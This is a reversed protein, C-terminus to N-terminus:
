VTSTEAVAEIEEELQQQEKRGRIQAAAKRAGKINGAALAQRVEAIRKRDHDVGTSADPPIVPAPLAGSSPVAPMLSVLEVEDAPIGTTSGQITFYTRSDQIGMVGTIIVQEDADPGHWMAQWTEGATYQTAADVQNKGEESRGNKVEVGKYLPPPSTFLSSDPSSHTFESHLSHLAADQHAVEPSSDTFESTPKEPVTVVWNVREESSGTFESHVEPSSATSFFYSQIEQRGTSTLTYRKFRNGSAEIFGLGLLKSLGKNVTSGAMETHKQIDSHSAGGAFIALNLTELIEYHKTTLASDRGTLKSSPIVTVSDAQPILRFYRNAFPKAGNIKECTLTLLGDESQSLKIVVRSAGRLSSNGREHQDNWGTHHCILIAAETARRIQHFADIAIGMDQTSNEDGGVMCNALTDAVILAPGIPAVEAIFATVSDPNLLNVPEPWFYLQGPGLGHQACWAPIRDQYDEADEAALYVVPAYQAVTLAIDLNVFSKGSGPRGFILSIKNTPLIGPILWKPKPLMGLESAHLLKRIPPAPAPAATTAAAATFQLAPLQALAAALGAGEWRHLDDVDGGAGLHAPLELAIAHVGGAELMTVTKFAGASGKDDLDFVVRVDVIGAAQLEAVLAATPATGEGACICVAAVGEQHCAWVSPEGNVIYLPGGLQLAESLGYWHAHGGSKVWGYKPRQEDIFKIRDIGIPTRYRLAPRGSWTVQHVAWYAVLQVPDLKRVACFSALTPAPAVGLAHGNQRPDIGLRRAYEAISGQDGSGHDIFAGPDTASDPKISTSPNQESRLPSFIPGIWGEKNPRPLRGNPQVAVIRPEISPWLSKWSGASM